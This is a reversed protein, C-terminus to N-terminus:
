EKALFEVFRLLLCLEVLSLGRCVRALKALNDM